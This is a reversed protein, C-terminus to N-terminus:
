RRHAKVQRQHYRTAAVWAWFRDQGSPAHNPDLLAALGDPATTLPLFTSGEPDLVAQPKFEVPYEHTRTSTPM